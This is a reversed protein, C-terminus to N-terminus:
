VRYKAESKTEAKVKAKAEKNAKIQNKVYNRADKDTYYSIIAWVVIIIFIIEFM